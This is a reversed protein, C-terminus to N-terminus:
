TLDFDSDSFRFSAVDIEYRKIITHLTTVKLGLLRAARRQVGGSKRLAACVINKEFRRIEEPLNVGSDPLLHRALGPQGAIHAPLLHADIRPPRAQRSAFELCKKLEGINGPWEYNCLALIAEPSLEREERGTQRCFEKLFHLSLPEIDTKRERLPPLLIRDSASIHLPDGTVRVNRGSSPQPAAGLIIRLNAKELSDSKSDHQRILRIIRAKLSDSLVSCLNLYLTGGAATEVMGKEDEKEGRLQAAANAGSTGFLLTELPTETAPWWTVSVFPERRRSSCEHILRAIFEKGTGPEGELVVPEDHQAHVAVATRAQTMWHSIGVLRKKILDEVRFEDGPAILTNDNAPYNRVTDPLM